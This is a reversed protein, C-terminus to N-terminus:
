APGGIDDLSCGDFGPVRKRETRIRDLGAPLARRRHRRRHHRPHDWIHNDVPPRNRRPLQNDLIRGQPILQCVLITYQAKLHLRRAGQSVERAHDDTADRVVRVGMLVVLPM